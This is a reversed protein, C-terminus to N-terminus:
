LRRRGREIRFKMLEDRLGSLQIGRLGPMERADDIAWRMASREMRDKVLHRFDM